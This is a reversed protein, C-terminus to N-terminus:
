GNAELRRRAEALIEATSKASTQGAEIEARAEALKSEIYVDPLTVQPDTRETVLFVRNTEPDVVEAMGQGTDVLQRLSSHLSDNAM